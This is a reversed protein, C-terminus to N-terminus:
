QYNKPTADEIINRHLDKMKHNLDKGYESGFQRGLHILGTILLSVSNSFGEYGKFPIRLSSSPLSGAPLLDLLAHVVWKRLQHPQNL